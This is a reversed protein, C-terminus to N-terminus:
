SKYSFEHKISSYSPIIVSIYAWGQLESAIHGCGPGEMKQGVSKENTSQSIFWDTEARRLM